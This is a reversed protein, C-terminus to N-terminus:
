HSHGHHDDMEPEPAGVGRLQTLGHAGRIVVRDGPVLGDLVEIFRDDRIGPVIDHKHYVGDEEVFVFTM